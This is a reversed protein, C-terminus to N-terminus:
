QVTLQGPTLTGTFPTQPSPASPSAAVAVVVITLVVAAGVGGWLWPSRLISSTEPGTTVLAAGSRQDDTAALRVVVEETERETARFGIRTLERGDRTVTVVHAGPDIPMPLGLAAQRVRAGDIAVQDTPAVGELTIRVRAARAELARLAREAQERYENARADDAEALFRRYTSAAAVLRGTHEQSAALNILILPDPDIAYAREFADRAQEWHGAGAERVGERFQERSLATHGGAVPQAYAVTGTGLAVVMVLLAFTSRM